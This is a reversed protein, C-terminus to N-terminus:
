RNAEKLRELGVRKEDGCKPCRLVAGRRDESAKGMWRSCLWCWLPNFHATRRRRQDRARGMAKETIEGLVVGLRALGHASL